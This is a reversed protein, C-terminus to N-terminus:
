SNYQPIHHVATRCKGVAKMIRYIDVKEGFSLAGTKEDERLFPPQEMGQVM